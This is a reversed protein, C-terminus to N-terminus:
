AQSGRSTDSPESSKSTNSAASTESASSTASSQPPAPPQVPTDRMFHSTDLLTRLLLTARYLRQQVAGLSDGITEAIEVNSYDALIRLEMAARVSPDLPELAQHVALLDIIKDDFSAEAPGPWADEDLLSIPISRKRRRFEAHAQNHAVTFLWALAKGKTIARLFKDNGARLNGFAELFTQQVVDEAASVNRMMHLAYAFIRVQYQALLDEMIQREYRRRALDRQALDSSHDM